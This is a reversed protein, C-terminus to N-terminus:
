SFFNRGCNERDKVMRWSWVSKWEIKGLTSSCAEFLDLQFIYTIKNGSFIPIWDRLRSSRGKTKKLPVILTKTAFGRHRTEILNDLATLLLSIITTTLHNKFHLKCSLVVCNARTKRQRSFQFLNANFGYFLYSWWDELHPCLLFMFALSSSKLIVVVVFWWLTFWSKRRIQEDFCSWAVTSESCVFVIIGVSTRIDGFPFYFRM